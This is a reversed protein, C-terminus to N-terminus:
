DDNTNPQNSSVQMRKKSTLLQENNKLNKRKKWLVEKVKPAPGGCMTAM